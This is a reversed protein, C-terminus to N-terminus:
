LKNNYKLTFYLTDGEDVLFVGTMEDAVDMLQQPYDMSLQCTKSSKNYGAIKCKGTQRDKSCWQVCHLQSIPQKIAYSTSLLKKKVFQTRVERIEALCLAITFLFVIAVTAAKQTYFFMNARATSLTAEFSIGCVHRYSEAAYHTKSFLLCLLPRTRFSDTQDTSYM